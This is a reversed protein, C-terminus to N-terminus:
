DLLLESCIDRLGRASLIMDGAYTHNTTYICPIERGGASVSIPYYVVNSVVSQNIVSFDSQIIYWTVSRQNTLFFSFYRTHALQAIKPLFNVEFTSM